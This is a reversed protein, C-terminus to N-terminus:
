TAACCSRGARTRSTSRSRTWRTWSACSRDFDKGGNPVYVSALTVDGAPTPVVATCIRTEFDFEPHVISPAGGPLLSKAILLAVGSYAGAGHWHSWYDPLALLEPPLKDVPAKIEQLCVVDPKERALWDVLQGQRARVGNVNWTAVKM